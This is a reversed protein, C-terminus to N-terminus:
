QRFVLLFFRIGTVAKRRRQVSQWRAKHAHWKVDQRNKEPNGDHGALINDKEGFVRRM